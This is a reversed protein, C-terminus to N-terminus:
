MFALTRSALSTDLVCFRNTRRIRLSSTRTPSVIASAIANGSLVSAVDKVSILFSAASIKYNTAPNSPESSQGSPASMFPSPSTLLM